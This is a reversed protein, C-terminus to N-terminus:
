HGKSAEAKIEMVKKVTARGMLKENWGWSRPYTDKWEKVFEEGMLFPVMSNWPVFMLDCYQVEKGTLYPNSTKSLHLDIVGLVRKIEAAYRDIASTPNKEPHFFTFWAKQGFYPGQGSMQFYSWQQQYYKDPTKTTHLKSTTDYTDLLYDIIAASQEILEWLTVGTNPDQMSPTRGNPNISLYPEKKLNGFDIYEIEYKIGLEELIIIPKWPNPGSAHGCIKIPKSM